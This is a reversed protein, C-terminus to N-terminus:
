KQLVGTKALNGPKRNLVQLWTASDQARMETRHPVIKNHHERFSAESKKLLNFVKWHPISDHALHLYCWICLGLALICSISLLHQCSERPVTCSKLPSKWLKQGLPWVSTILNGFMVSTGGNQLRQKLCTTWDDQAPSTLNQSTSEQRKVTQAKQRLLRRSFDAFFWHSTWGQACCM